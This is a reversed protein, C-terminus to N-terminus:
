HFDGSVNPAVAIWMGNMPRLSLLPLPQAMLDTAPALEFRFLIQEIALLIEQMAFSEGICSRQGGGFPFYVSPSVKEDTFWREPLFENARQFNRTLRHSVWPSVLISNGPPLLYDGLQISAVTSRSLLWVPPYLRLSEKIAAERWLANSRAKHQVVPHHALLGLTWSLANATTEHGAILFTVIQARREDSPLQELRNLFESRGGSRLSYLKDAMQGLPVAAKWYTRNAPWPMHYPPRFFSRSRRYFYLMLQQSNIIIQRLEAPDPQVEFLSTMVVAATLDVLREAVNCIGRPWADLQQSIASRMLPAKTQVTSPVFEDKVLRRAVEWRPTESLLLGNGILPNRQDMGPGKKFHRVHHSLVYSTEQEGTVLYLTWRGLRIPTVPQDLEGYQLLMSLPDRHFELLTMWPNGRGVHSTM